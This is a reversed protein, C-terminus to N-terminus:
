LVGLLANDEWQDVVELHGALVKSHPRLTLALRTTRQGAPAIRPAKANPSSSKISPSPEVSSAARASVVTHSRIGHPHRSAM